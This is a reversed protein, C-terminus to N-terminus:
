RRGGPRAHGVARPSGRGSVSRGTPAARAAGNCDSLEYSQARPVLVSPGNWDPTGSRYQGGGSLAGGELPDTSLSMSSSESTARRGPQVQVKRVQLSRGPERLRYASARLVGSHDPPMTRWRFRRATRPGDSPEEIGRPGTLLTAACPSGPRRSRAQTSTAMRAAISISGDEEAVRAEGAARSRALERARGRDDEEDIAMRDLVRHDALVRRTRHCRRGSSSAARRMSM